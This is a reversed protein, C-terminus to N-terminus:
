RDFHEIFREVTERFEDSHNLDAMISEIVANEHTNAITNRLILARISQQELQAWVNYPIDSSDRPIRYEVYIQVDSRGIDQEPLDFRFGQYEGINVEVLHIPFEPISM